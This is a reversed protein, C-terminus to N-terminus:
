MPTHCLLMSRRPSLMRLHCFPVFRERSNALSAIKLYAVFLVAGDKHRSRCFVDEFAIPDVLSSRESLQAPSRRATGIYDLFQVAFGPREEMRVVLGLIRITTGYSLDMKVEVLNGKELNVKANIWAGGLGVNETVAEIEQMETNGNIDITTRVRAPIPCTSDSTAESKSIKGSLSIPTYRAGM